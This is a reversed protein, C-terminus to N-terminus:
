HPHSLNATGRSHASWEDPSLAVERLLAIQEGKRKRKRRGEEDARAGVLDFLERRRAVSSMRFRLFYYRCIIISCSRSLLWQCRLPPLKKLGIYLPPRSPTLEGVFRPQSQSAQEATHRAVAFRVSGANCKPHSLGIPTLKSILPLSIYDSLWRGRVGVGTSLQHPADRVRM